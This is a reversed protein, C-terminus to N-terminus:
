GKPRWGLFHSVDELRVFRTAGSRALLAHEPKEAEGAGGPAGVHVRLRKYAQRGRPKKWPLMGRVARKLIRHPAKPYFPGKYRHGRDAREKYERMIAKKSGTIVAKEANVITVEQGELLRKAVDSALRGMIVGDADVVAM